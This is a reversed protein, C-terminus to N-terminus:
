AYRMLALVGLFAGERIVLPSLEDILSLNVTDQQLASLLTLLADPNAAINLDIAEIDDIVEQCENEPNQSHITLSKKTFDLAVGSWKDTTFQKASRVADILEKVSVRVDVKSEKPIANRWNVFKAEMLKGRVTETETSFQIANESATMTLSKSKLNSICAVLESPIIHRAEPLGRVDLESACMIKGSYAALTIGDRNTELCVACREPFAKNDTNQAGKVQDLAFLFQGGDLTAPTGTPPKGFSFEEIDQISISAKRNGSSCLLRPGKREFEIRESPASKIFAVFLAAPACVGDGPSQIEAACKASTYIDLNTGTFELAGNSVVVALSNLVPLTTRGTIGLSAFTTSKILEKKQATFKM